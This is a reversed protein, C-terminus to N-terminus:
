CYIRIEGAEDTRYIGNSDGILSGDAYMIKFEANALTVSPNVSCVKRVLLIGDPSNDFKVTVVNQVGDDSIYVTESSNIISYGDAPDIEEVIYTGATLGTWIDSGEALPVTERMPKGGTQSVDYYNGMLYGRFNRDRPPVFVAAGKQMESDLVFRNQKHWFDTTGIRTPAAMQRLTLAINGASLSINDSQLVLYRAYLNPDSAIGALADDRMQSLQGRAARNNLTRQQKSESKSRLIESLSPM